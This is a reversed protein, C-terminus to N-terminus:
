QLMKKRHNETQSQKNAESERYECAKAKECTGLPIANLYYLLKHYLVYEMKFNVSNRQLDVGFPSTTEWGGGADRRLVQM